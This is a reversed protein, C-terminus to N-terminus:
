YLVKLLWVIKISNDKIIKLKFICSFLNSLIKFNIKLVDRKTKTPNIIELIKEYMYLIIIALCKPGSTYPNYESEKTIINNNAAIDPSPILSPTKLYIENYLPFFSFSFIFYIKLNDKLNNNNEVIIAARIEKKNASKIENVIKLFGSKIIQSLIKLKKIGMQTKEIKKIFM